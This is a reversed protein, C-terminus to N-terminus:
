AAALPTPLSGPEDISADIPLRATMPELLRHEDLFDSTTILVGDPGTADVQILNGESTTVLLKSAHAGRWAYQLHYTRDATLVRRVCTGPVATIKEVDRLHHLYRVIESFNKDFTVQTVAKVPLSRLGHPLCASSFSQFSRDIALRLRSM